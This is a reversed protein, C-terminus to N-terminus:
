CGLVACIRQRYLTNVEPEPPVPPRPTTCESRYDPALGRNVCSAIRWGPPIDTLDIDRWKPHGEVQLRNFRNVILHSVESVADCALRHYSNQRPNFEYTMLVAKVAVVPVSDTLWPYTRAAISTPTYVSTLVDDTIPLLHYRQPDIRPDDFLSIPAGSVYFFADIEGELLADLAEAPDLTLTEGPALRMFDLILSATLFTGSDANGISVRRDALDRLSRVQRSALVHVEENYLPFAIQVGFLARRIVPDDAQFTKFYELVDNQVIGFQTNPRQRVALFNELSGASETVNVTLGCEGAIRSIDRGIEIYTGGPVGTMITTAFDSATAPPVTLAPLLLGLCLARCFSAIRIM